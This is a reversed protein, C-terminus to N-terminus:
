RTMQAGGSGNANRIIVKSAKQHGAAGNGRSNSDTLDIVTRDTRELLLRFLELTMEIISTQSQEQQFAVEELLDHM